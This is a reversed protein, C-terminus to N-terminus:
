FPYGIAFHFACDDSWKLGNSRTRWQKGEYIRAPDYLRVGLDFRLILFSLDMRLGAGYCWGLQKYFTNWHFTGGPQSTYDQITWINGADSFVAGQLFKWIRVRYEASLDIRIDGAQNDYNAASGEPKYTGPGLSRATWGRVGNAGGAYYRKEFPIASSNGYPLAVGIAGRFVVRHNENVIAHGTFNFDFKAYQSFLINGLKYNGDEDTPFHALKSLGQLFNGATEASLGFTGYSRYPHKQQFSSYNVQYGIAMIFHDEYSYKMLNSSQLFTKRFEDDIWPLYVYSLDIFRFSHNWKSAPAMKVQYTLFTNAIIRNYEGPRDQYRGEIEWKIRNPFRLGVNALAEIARGGNQRWEYSGRAKVSLEEAGRFLNRNTYGAELAIGWDGSTYTGEVQASVSHLKQRNLTVHCDLQNNGVPVFSIDVYKVVGLSNFYEYTRDVKRQDYLDGPRIKCGRVLVRDRLLKKGYNTFSYDGDEKTVAEANGQVFDADYDSYFCVRRISYRQFVTKYVSDKAQKVYDQLSLEVDVQHGGIMSDAEFGLMEKEFYYYGQGRMDDEIRKRESNLVDADFLIGQKLLTHREDRASQMLDAQNLDYTTKRLIYPQRATVNYTISLKKGKTHIVTDVTADFYGKNQMAKKLHFMSAEALDPDYIEPAEGARHANRALRKNNKSTTDKPATNYIQLQLKWFGLIESNPTQRLYSRLDTPDVDKTDTVQIHAKDLLYRNEPIFKTTNCSSLLVMLTAVLVLSISQASKGM